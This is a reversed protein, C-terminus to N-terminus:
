KKRQAIREALPARPVDKEEAVRPFRHQGELEAGRRKETPQFGPKLEDFAADPLGFSTDREHDTEPTKSKMEREQTALLGATFLHPTPHFSNEM